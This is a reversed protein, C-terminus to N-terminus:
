EVRQAITSSIDIKTYSYVPLSRCKGKVSALMGGRLVLVAGSGCVYIGYGIYDAWNDVSSLAQGQLWLTSISERESAANIKRYCSSRLGVQDAGSISASNATV